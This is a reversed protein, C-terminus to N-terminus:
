VYRRKKFLLDDGLIFMPCSTSVQVRKDHLQDYQMLGLKVVCKYWVIQLRDLDAFINSDRKGKVFYAYQPIFITIYFYFYLLM